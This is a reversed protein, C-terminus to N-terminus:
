QASQMKEGAEEPGGEEGSPRQMEKNQLRLATPSELGTIQRVLHMTSGAKSAARKAGDEAATRLYDNNPDMISLFKERFDGLALVVEHAVMEKFARMTMSQHERAIEECSGPNKSIHKLIEVLNSVGPRSEPDYSIGEESDTLAGKIKAHIEEPPDTILIRSRPDEHSKSMKHKPDKLSM